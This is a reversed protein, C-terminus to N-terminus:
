VQGVRTFGPTLGARCAQGLGVGERVLGDEAVPFDVNLSTFGPQACLGRLRHVFAQGFGTPYDTLVARQDSADRILHWPPPGHLARLVKEAASM